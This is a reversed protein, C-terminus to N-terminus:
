KNRQKKSASNSSSAAEGKEGEREKLFYQTPASATIEAPFTFQKAGMLDAIVAHVCELWPGNCM